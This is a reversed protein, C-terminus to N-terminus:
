NLKLQKVTNMTYALMLILLALNVIDLKNASKEMIITFM